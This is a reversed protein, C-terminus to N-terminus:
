RVEIRNTEVTEPTQEVRPECTRLVVRGTAAASYQSFVGSRRQIALRMKLATRM